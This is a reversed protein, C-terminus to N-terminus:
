WNRIPPRSAFLDILFAPIGLIFCTPLPSIALGIVQAPGELGPHHAKKAILSNSMASSITQSAGVRDRLSPRFRCEVNPLIGENLTVRLKDEAHGSIRDHRFCVFQLVSM